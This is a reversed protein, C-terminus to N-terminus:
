PPGFLWLRGSFAAQAPALDGPNAVGRVPAVPAVRLAASAVFSGDGM